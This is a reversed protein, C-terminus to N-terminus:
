DPMAKMQSKIKKEFWFTKNRKNKQLQANVKAHLQKCFNVDLNRKLNQFKSNKKQKQFSGYSTELSFM